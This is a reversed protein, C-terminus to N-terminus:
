PLQAALAATKPALRFLAVRNNPVRSVPLGFERDSFALDAAPGVKYFEEEDNQRAIDGFTTNTSLIGSRRFGAAWIVTDYELENVIISQYGVSPFAPAAIVRLRARGNSPVNLFPALAWYRSRVGNTDLWSGVTRPLNEDYWDVQEIWDLGAVSMHASPGVGLLAEVAVKGSDGGGVVAVRGMGRLPFVNDMRAMFDPFTMFNVANKVDTPVVASPAGLGTAEIVRDTYVYSGDGLEVRYRRTDFPGGISVEEASEIYVDAYSALALRACFAIDANTQYQNASLMAPQLDAGPLYNQAANSSPQGLAGPRNRSNLYWSPARSYAFAGGVRSREIVLPKSYGSKVRVAAYIAAHVGGGIIVEDYSDQAPPDDNFYRELREDLKERAAPVM